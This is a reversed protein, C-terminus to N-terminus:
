FLVWDMIFKIKDKATITFHEIGQFIRPNVPDQAYPNHIMKITQSSTQELFLIASLRTNKLFIQGQQIQPLIMGKRSRSVQGTAVSIQENGLLVDLCSDISLGSEFSPFVANILPLHAEKAERYKTLKKSIANRLLDSNVWQTFEPGAVGVSRKHSTKRNILKFTIILDNDKYILEENDPPTNLDFTSLWNQVFRVIAKIDKGIIAKTPRASMYLHFYHEINQIRYRLENWARIEAQIDKPPMIIVAEVILDKGGETTHVRWDPTKEGLPREYELTHGYAKIIDGAILENYTTLFLDPNRIHQIIEHQQEEAFCSVLNEIAVRKEEWEPLVAVRYLAPQQFIPRKEYRKKIENIWASEFTKSMSITNYGNLPVFIFSAV